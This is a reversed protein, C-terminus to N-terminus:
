LYKIIPLFCYLPHLRSPTLVSDLPKAYMSLCTLLSNDIYTSSSPRLGCAAQHEYGILCRVNDSGSRFSEITDM